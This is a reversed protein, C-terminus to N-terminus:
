AGEWAIQAGFLAAFARVTEWDLDPAMERADVAGATLVHLKMASLMPCAMEGALLKQWAGRSYGLAERLRRAQESSQLRPLADLHTRLPNAATM